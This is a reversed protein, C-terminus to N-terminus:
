FPPRIRAIAAPSESTPLCRICLSSRKMRSGSNLTKTTASPIPPCWDPSTALRMAALLM